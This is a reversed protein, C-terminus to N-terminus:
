IGQLQLTLLLQFSTTKSVPFWDQTVQSLLIHEESSLRREPEWALRKLRKMYTNLGVSLDEAEEVLARIRPAM